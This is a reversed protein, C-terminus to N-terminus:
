VHMSITFNSHNIFHGYGGATTASRDLDGDLSGVFSRFTFLYDFFHEFRLCNM